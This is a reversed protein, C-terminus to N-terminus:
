KKAHQPEVIPHRQPGNTARAPGSPVFPSTTNGWVFALPVYVALTVREECRITALNNVFDDENEFSIEVIAQERDFLAANGPFGGVLFEGAKMSISSLVPLGWLTPAAMSQPPGYGPGQLVYLGITSKALQLAAWDVPNVVIATAVYGNTAIQTIAAAIADMFTTVAATISAPIALHTAQPMLGNLHGASNDGYLVETAEKRLVLYVMRQDISTQVYPVDALMQRSVKIFHAITRVMATADTYTVGSQSKRTGETVQYDPNETWHETVYEVANTGDLPVVDLLDRMVLPFEPPQIWAVRRPFIVLGSTGETVPPPAVLPTPVGGETRTLLRQNVSHQIKFKGSFNASKFAESETFAHGLSMTVPSGALAGPPRSSRQALATYKALVGAVSAEVKGIREVLEGVSQTVAEGAAKRALLATAEKLEAQGKIFQQLLEEDTKQPPPAAAAAAPTNIASPEM